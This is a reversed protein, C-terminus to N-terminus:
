DGAGGGGGRRGRRGGRRGAAQGGEGAGRGGGGAAPSPGGGVLATSSYFAFLGGLCGSVGILRVSGGLCVCMALGVWLGVVGGVCGWVWCWGFWGGVVGGGCGGWM